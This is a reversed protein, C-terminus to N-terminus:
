WVRETRGGEILSTLFTEVPVSRLWICDSASWATVWTRVRPLSIKVLESARLSRLSM